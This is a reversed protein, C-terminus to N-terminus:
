NAMSARLCAMTSSGTASSTSVAASLRSSPHPISRGRHITPTVEEAISDMCANLGPYKNLGDNVFYFVLPSTYGEGSRLCEIDHLCLLFIVEPPTLHRIESARIPIYRTLIERHKSINQLTPTLLRVAPPSPPGVGIAYEHRIVSNYELASSAYDSMDEIVLPPTKIAIRSLAARQWDTLSEHRLDSSTFHFLVCLFWMNRFLAVLEPSASKHLEFDSHALLADIPLLLASLQEIMDPVQFFM